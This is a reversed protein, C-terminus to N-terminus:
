FSTGGTYGFSHRADDEDIFALVLLSCLLVVGGAGCLTFRLISTCDIPLPLTIPFNFFIQALGLLPPKPRHLSLSGKKEKRSACFEIIFMRMKTLRWILKVQGYQLDLKKEGMLVIIFM